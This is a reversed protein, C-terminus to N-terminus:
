RNHKIQRAITVLSSEFKFNTKQILFSRIAEAIFKEHNYTICLISVMIEAGNMSNWKRKRAAVNIESEIKDTVLNGFHKPKFNNDFNQARLLLRCILDLDSLSLTHYLPLCVVRSSISDCVPMPQNKVYPLSSLSPYFYRRCYIQALELKAKSQHMLAETEFVIPFYAYNYDQENELKQFQVNLNGLRQLYQEYLYKRKKLIEDVHRLNCLGMAAHFESNKANIGEESFTDVGSYGFNRMLAM